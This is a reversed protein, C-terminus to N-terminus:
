SMRAFLTREHRGNAFLWVEKMKEFGAQQLIEACETLLQLCMLKGRAVLKVTLILLGGSKLKSSLVTVVRAAQRPDCNMDCVILDINGGGSGSGAKVALEEVRATAEEAKCQLHVVNDKGMLSPNLLGPDIAIVLKCGCEALYETWGGPAAGIDLAVAGGFTCIGRMGVEWLKYYARSLKPQGFFALSNAGGPSTSYSYEKRVVGAFYCGQPGESVFIVDTFDKPCLTVHKGLVEIARDALGRPRVQLRFTRTSLAADGQLREQLLMFCADELTSAVVHCVAYFQQRCPVSDLCFQKLSSYFHSEDSGPPANTDETQCVHEFVCLDGRQLKLVLEYRDRLYRSMRYRHAHDIWLMLKTSGNKLYALMSADEHLAITRTDDLEQEMILLKGARQNLELTSFQKIKDVAKRKRTQEGSNTGLAMSSGLTPSATNGTNKFAKPKMRAPNTKKVFRDYLVMTGLNAATIEQDGGTYSQARPPSVVLCNSYRSKMESLLINNDGPFLYIARHPHVFDKLPAGGPACIVWRCKLPACRAFKELSPYSFVPIYAWAKTTDTTNLSHRTMAAGGVNCLFSAGYQYASRWLTGHHAEKREGVLGVGFYEEVGKEKACEVKDDKVATIFNGAASKEVLRIDIVPVYEHDDELPVDLAAEPSDELLPLWHYESVDTYMSTEDRNKLHSDLSVFPVYGRSLYGLFYDDKKLLASMTAHHLMHDAGVFTSARLIRGTGLKSGSISCRFIFEYQGGGGM